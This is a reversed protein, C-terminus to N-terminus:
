YHTFIGNGMKRFKYPRKRNRGCINKVFTVSQPFAKGDSSELYVDLYSCLLTLRASLVWASRVTDNEQNVNVMMELERIEDSNSSDYVGNFNLCLSFLPSTEPYNNKIAILVHLTANGRTLELSYFLDAPSVFEDEVFMQTFNSQCYKQYTISSWKTLSTQPNSPYKEMDPFKPLTNQELMQLQCALNYKAELRKFLIKVINEVNSNGIEQCNVQKTLFDMGCVRQAWHYAYGIQPVLSQFSTVGVKKIQFKSIPNPSDLGLDGKVLESLINEGSLVERAAHGTITPSINTKSTVTVIKLKTCYQFTAVVSTGCNLKATIEVSLPHVELLSKKKEEMPDVQHLSKRHRRKKMEVVEEVEATDAEQESGEDEVLTDDRDQVENWQAAEEVDGLIEVNLSLDYVNTYSLINVYFIYLPDPLLHSLKHEARLEKSSIDLHEQLPKASNIVDLLLPRLANLKEKLDVLVQGIKKQEEQLSKCLQALNKRQMLEWELRALRLSHEQERDQPNFSDFKKSLSSPADRMFDEFPVLEIDEDRSKFALCKNTEAVLHHLEYVLNQYSLKISDCKQKEGAMTERGFVHRIKDFRNLKKIICLKIFIDTQLEKNSNKMSPDEQKQKYIEGLMDKIDRCSEFHISADIENQRNEAEKEEFAIVKRYIDIEIEAESNTTKRKKKLNTEKVM